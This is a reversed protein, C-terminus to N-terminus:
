ENRKREEGRIVIKVFDLWDDNMRKILRNQEDLTKNFQYAFVVMLVAAIIALSAIIALLTETGM